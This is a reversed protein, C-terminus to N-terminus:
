SLVEQSPWVFCWFMFCWFVTWFVLTKGVQYIWIQALQATSYKWTLTVPLTEHLQQLINISGTNIAIGADVSCFFHLTCKIFARWFHLFSVVQPLSGPQLKCLEILLTTYMVEIHPPSPLQFLEAFIVQTPSSPVSDSCLGVHGACGEAECYRAM